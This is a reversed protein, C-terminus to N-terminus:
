AGGYLVLWGHLVGLSERFSKKLIKTFPQDAIASRSERFQPPSDLREHHSYRRERTPPRSGVADVLLVAADVTPSDEVAAVRAALGTARSDVVVVDLFAAATRTITLM